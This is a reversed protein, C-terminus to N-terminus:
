CEPLPQCFLETLKSDASAAETEEGSDCTAFANEIGWQRLLTDSAKTDTKGSHALSGDCLYLKGVVDIRCEILCTKKM